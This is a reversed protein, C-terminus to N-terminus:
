GDLLSQMEALEAQQAAIIEGALAIANASVGESKETEAMAIAGEHHATMMELWMRDFDAGAATALAEMDEDSMMGEMSSMDGDSMAMPQGWDELWGTMLVIEPDQGAKIRTALDAVAADARSADALALDAMEVAQQHHPVMRQAFSVDADNFPAQENSAAGTTASDGSTSAASMDMGSHDDDSCAAVTPVTGIVFIAVLRKM